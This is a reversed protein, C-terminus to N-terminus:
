EAADLMRPQLGERALIHCIEAILSAIRSLGAGPQQLAPDLYLARDVELQVAHINQGMAAHRRLVYDGSYPHNLQCAYGNLRLRETVLESIRGTASKGFLDGVVFQAAAVGFGSGLPPMSHLDLLIAGGFKRQMLALTAEIQAHYPRHFSDLREDIEARTFLERWIDGEGSLRRPVLGLGGRVKIGPKINLVRDAAVLMDQDLDHADRNLDIWARPRLAIIAPFGAKIADRALYDAYRDELRTLSPVPLRLKDYVLQPYDRGAHPVSLLIPVTPQACNRMAFGANLESQGQNSPENRLM